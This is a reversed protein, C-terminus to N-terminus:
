GVHLLNMGRLRIECRIGTQVCEIGTTYMGLSIFWIGDHVINGAAMIYNNTDRKSKSSDHKEAAM